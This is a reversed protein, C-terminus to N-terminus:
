VLPALNGSDAPHDPKSAIVKHKGWLHFTQESTSWSGSSLHALWVQANLDRKRTEAEAGNARQTTCQVCQQVFHIYTVHCTGAHLNRQFLSILADSLLEPQSIKRACSYQEEEGQYRLM